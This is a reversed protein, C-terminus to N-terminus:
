SINQMAPDGPKPLIAGAAFRSSARCISERQRWNLSSSSSWAFKKWLAQSFFLALGRRVFLSKGSIRVRRLSIHPWILKRCDM